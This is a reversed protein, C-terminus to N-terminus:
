FQGLAILRRRVELREPINPRLLTVTARGIATRGYIRGDIMAFHDDWHGIRPNFLSM